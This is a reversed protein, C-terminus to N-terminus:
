LEIVDQDDALVAVLRQYRARIQQKRRARNIHQEEKSKELEKLKRHWGALLFNGAPTVEKRTAAKMTRAFVRATVNNM